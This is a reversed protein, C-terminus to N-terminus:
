QTQFVTVSEGNANRHTCVENSEMDPPLGFGYNGGENGLLLMHCAIDHRQLQMLLTDYDLCDPRATVGAGFVPFPGYIASVDGLLCVHMCKVIRCVCMM